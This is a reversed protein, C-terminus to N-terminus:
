WVGIKREAKSFSRGGSWRSPQARRSAAPGGQQAELERQRRLGELLAERERAFTENKELFALWPASSRPSAAAGSPAGEQRGAAQEAPPPEHLLSHAPFQSWGRASSARPPTGERPPPPTSARPTRPQALAGR